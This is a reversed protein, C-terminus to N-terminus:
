SIQVSPSPRLLLLLRVTQVPAPVNVCKRNKGRTESRTSERYIRLGRKTFIRLSHGNKFAPSNVFLFWLFWVHFRNCVRVISRSAHPLITAAPWLRDSTLVGNRRICASVFHHCTSCSFPQWDLRKHGKTRLRLSCM